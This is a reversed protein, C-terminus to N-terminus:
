LNSKKKKSYGQLIKETIEKGYQVNLMDILFDPINM